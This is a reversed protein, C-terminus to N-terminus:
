KIIQGWFSIEMLYVYSAAAGICVQNAKLRIFRVPVFPDPAFENAEVEWDIGDNVAWTIDDATIPNPKPVQYHLLPIWSEDWSGDPNPDMSGWLEFDTLHYYDWPYAWFQYYKIRSLIITQNLYITFWTPFTGMDMIALYNTSQASSNIGDWARSYFSAGNHPTDGPLSIAEWTKPIFEEFMPTLTAAITDSLNNWRDRLYVSYNGPITDLGRLAFMRKEDSMYFTELYSQYGVQATDGMLVVALAAKEPNEVSVSVGGFATRLQKTALHVPATSPNVQETLPASTKGNKGVSYLMVDYTQAEGFGELVLSDKYFSSIAERQVGPKIEYVAQVYLLNEDAPVKYKLVAGGATNRVTVDTVQAPAPANSDFHDIRGEEKCGTFFVTLFYSLTFIRIIKNKM